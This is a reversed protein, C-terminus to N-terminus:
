TRDSYKCGFFLGNPPNLDHASSDDPHGVGFGVRGVPRMVNNGKVLLMQTAQSLNRISDVAVSVAMMM